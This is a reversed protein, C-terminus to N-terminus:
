KKVFVPEPIGVMALLLSGKWGTEAILSDGRILFEHSDGDKGADLYLRNGDVRYTGHDVDRDNDGKVRVEVELEYVNKSKLDLAASFRWPISATTGEGAYVYHGRVSRDRLVQAFASERACDATTLAFVVSPVLLFPRYM